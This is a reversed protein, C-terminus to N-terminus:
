RTLAPGLHKVSVVEADPEDIALTGVARATAEVLSEAAIYRRATGAPTRLEVLFGELATPAVNDAAAM